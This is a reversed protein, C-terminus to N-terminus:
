ELEGIMQGWTPPTWDFDRRFKTPDLARNIRPEAALKIDAPAYSGRYHAALMCLLMAKTIPVTGVHYLGSHQPRVLVHLIARSLAQTTLGNFWANSWGTVTGRQALFWELLGHPQVRNERGIMSTRLTVCGRDTVEGLLKTQGYTDRPDPVAHETYLNGLPTNGSFVCDTSIHIMRAGAVQAVYHITHPALANVEIMTERSVRQSKVIGACNIIVEPRFAHAINALDVFRRIDVADSSPAQVEHGARHLTKVLQHGLMGAGGFVLIKM